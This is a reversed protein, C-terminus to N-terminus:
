PLTRIISRSISLSVLNEKQSKIFEIIVGTTSHQVYCTQLMRYHYTLHMLESNPCIIIWIQDSSIAAPFNGANDEEIQRSKM